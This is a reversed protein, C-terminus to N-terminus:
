AEAVAAQAVKDLSGDPADDGPMVEVNCYVRRGDASPLARHRFQHWGNHTGMYEWVEGDDKNACAADGYKAAIAAWMRRWGEMGRKMQTQM